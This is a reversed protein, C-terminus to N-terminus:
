VSHEIDKTTTVILNRFQMIQEDIFNKGGFTLVMTAAVLSTVALMSLLWATCKCGYWCLSQLIFTGIALHIIEATFIWMVHSVNWEYDALRFKHTNEANAIMTAAIFIATVIFFLYTPACLKRLAAIM